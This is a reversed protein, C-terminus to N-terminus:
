WLELSGLAFTMTVLKSAELTLQFTHCSFPRRESSSQRTKTEITDQLEGLDRESRVALLLVTLLAQLEISDQAIDRINKEEREEDENEIM